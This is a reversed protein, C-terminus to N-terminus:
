GWPLSCRPRITSRGLWSPVACIVGNRVFMAADRLIRDSDDCTVLHSINRILLTQNM